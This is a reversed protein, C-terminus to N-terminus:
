SKSLAVIGAAAAEIIYGLTWALENNNPRYGRQQDEFLEPIYGYTSKIELINNIRALGHDLARSAEAPQSTAYLDQAKLFYYRAVIPKGMTWKAEERGKKWPDGRYRYFGERNELEETRKIIEIKEYAPLDIDNLAVLSALDSVSQHNRADTYDAPFHETAKERLRDTADRLQQLSIKLQYSNTQSDIELQPWVRIIQDLGALVIRRTSYSSWAKDHEWISRCVLKETKLNATYAIIEQLIAGLPIPQNEEKNLVPWGLAIGKGAELLLTGWNDPQNHGWDQYIYGDKTFKIAPAVRDNICCYGNQDPSHPRSQFRQLQEKQGQLELLSRISSLYLSKAIDTLEPFAQQFQPDTAFKIARAHDKVWVMGNFHQDDYRGVSAPILGNPLLNSSIKQLGYAALGELQTVPVEAIQIAM